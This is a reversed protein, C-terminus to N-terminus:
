IKLLISVQDIGFAHPFRDLFFDLIFSFQALPRKTSLAGAHLIQGRGNKKMKEYKKIKPCKKPGRGLGYKEYFRYKEARSPTQFFIFFCSMKSRALFTSYIPGSADEASKQHFSMVKPTKRPMTKEIKRLLRFSAFSNTKWYFVHNQAM